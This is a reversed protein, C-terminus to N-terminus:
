GRSIDGRGSNRVTIRSNFLVFAREALQHTAPSVFRRSSSTNISRLYIELTEVNDGNRLRGLVQAAYHKIETEEPLALSGRMLNKIGELSVKM